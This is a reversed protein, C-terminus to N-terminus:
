ARRAKIGRAGIDRRYFMGSFSVKGLAEYARNRADILTSGIGTVGLVRGGNTVLRNGETRTGAHFIVVDGPRDPWTELTITDGRCYSEPYGRAAAVVCLAHRDAARVEKDALRGELCAIGLETLDSEVLPLVAQTEPDGLRCNFELVRVGQDSIVVGAYIVGRYDIGHRHLGALLPEFVQQEVARLVQSTVVPASAYAGMGGTNPGLDDDLLRKHDQSPPLFRCVSGDSLGIISAEEGELFEEVVVSHGAPGFRNGELMAVLTQDAEDRTRCIIVGKGAALGAAKVVLPLSQTRAHERARTLDDFVRFRATPIGQEEMLQKAFAKDGELRAGDRTPGFLALGHARFEDAVGAVLPGEPGVITLDIRERRCFSVLAPFNGIDIPECHAIERIGGNGPICYVRHGHRVLHWVLAHERGGAGLVLVRM